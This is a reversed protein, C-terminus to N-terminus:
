PIIEVIHWELFPLVISVIFHDMTVLSQHKSTFSSHASCLSYKPCYINCYQLVTYLLHLILEILQLPVCDCLDIFDPFCYM